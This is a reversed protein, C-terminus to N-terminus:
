DEEIFKEQKITNDDLFKKNKKSINMRFEPVKSAKFHYFRECADKETIYFLKRFKESFVKEIISGVSNKIISTFGDSTASNFGCMAVDVSTFIKLRTNKRMKPPLDKDSQCTILTTIKGHRGQTFLENLSDLNKYATLENAADDFIILLNSNLNCHKIIKIESKSLDKENKLITHKNNYVSNKVNRYLLEEKLIEKRFNEHEDLKEIYEEEMRRIYEKKWENEGNCCYKDFMRKIFEYHQNIEDECKARKMQWDIIKHLHINVIEKKEAESKQGSDYDINGIHKYIFGPHVVTSYFGDKSYETPCYVITNATYKHINYMINRIIFSKGSGSMGYLVITKYLLNDFTLPFEKIQIEQVEKSQPKQVLALITKNKSDPDPDIFKISNKSM